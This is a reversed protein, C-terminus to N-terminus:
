RLFDLILKGNLVILLAAIGIALAVLWPPSVSAGMLRKRSTFQVLPIVAFPLQLSLVVQSFVLLKGAEGEGQMAIVAVAPGIALLRTVLRRLWPKLRLRVFGEMVIQGAMTATVTANQGSALLALAFLVSAIPAGLIPALLQHAQELDAVDGRGAKHFTAAALILIAANLAM